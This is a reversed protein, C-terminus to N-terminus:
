ANNKMNIGILEIVRAESYTLRHTMKETEEIFEQPDEGEEGRFEPTRLKLFDQISVGEDDSARTVIKHPISIPTQTSAQSSKSAFVQTKSHAREARLIANEVRLAELERQEDM